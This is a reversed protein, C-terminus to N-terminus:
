LAILAWASAAAESATASSFPSSVASSAVPATLLPVLSTGDTRSTGTLTVTSLMSSVTIASPKRVQSSIQTPSKTCYQGSPQSSTAAAGSANPPLMATRKGSLADDARQSASSRRKRLAANSAAPTSYVMTLASPSAEVWIVWASCASVAPALTRSITL